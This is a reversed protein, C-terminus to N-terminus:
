NRTVCQLGGNWPKRRETPEMWRFPTKCFLKSGILVLVCDFYIYDKLDRFASIATNAPAQPAESFFEKVGFLFTGIDAASFHKGSKSQIFIFEVDLRGVRDRFYDVDEPSSVIHGSVLVAVGDVGTDGEGETSVDEIDFSDSTARSVVCYNVFHHFQDGPPVSCFGHTTAFDEVYSALIKDM